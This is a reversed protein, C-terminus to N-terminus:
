ATNQSIFIDTDMCDFEKSISGKKHRAWVPYSGGKASNSVKAQPCGFHEEM